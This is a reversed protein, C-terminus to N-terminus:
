RTQQLIDGAVTVKTPNKAMTDLGLAGKSWVLPFTMERFHSRQMMMTPDVKKASEIQPFEDRPMFDHNEFMALEVLKDDVPRSNVEVPRVKGDGKTAYKLDSVVDSVKNQPVREEPLRLNVVEKDKNFKLDAYSTDKLSDLASPEAGETLDYNPVLDVKQVKMGPDVSMNEQNGIRGRIVYYVVVALAVVTAVAVTIKVGLPLSNFLSPDATKTRASM